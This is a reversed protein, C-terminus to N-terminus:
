YQESLTLVTNIANIKGLLKSSKDRSNHYNKNLAKKMEPFSNLLRRYEESEGIASMMDIKYKQLTDELESRYALKNPKLSLPQRRESTVLTKNIFTMKHFLITKEYTAHRSNKEGNKSLVKCKLLRLVQKYVFRRSELPCECGSVDLYANNLQSISFHNFSKKELIEALYLNMKM